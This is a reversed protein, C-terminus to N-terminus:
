RWRRGYFGGGYIRVGFGPGWGYGYPYGYGYGYAYAPAYAPAYGSAYPSYYAGGGPAGARYGQPASRYDQASVPQFAEASHATSITMPEKIRFVLMQEPGVYTDHGRTFMV